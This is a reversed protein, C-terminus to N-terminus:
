LLSINKYFNNRQDIILANQSKGDEIFNQDFLKGIKGFRIYFPLKTVNNISEIAKVSSLVIREM